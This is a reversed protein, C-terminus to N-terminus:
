GLVKPLGSPPRLDKSGTVVRVVPISRQLQTLLWFTLGNGCAM